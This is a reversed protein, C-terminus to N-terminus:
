VLQPMSSKQSSIMLSKSSSLRAVARTEVALVPRVRLMAAAARGAVEDLPVRDLILLFADRLVDRADTRMRQHRFVDRDVAVDIIHLGALDVLDRFRGLDALRRLACQAYDRRKAQRRRAEDNQIGSRAVRTPSSLDRHRGSQNRNWRAAARAGAAPARRM